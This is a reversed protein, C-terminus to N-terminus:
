CNIGDLSPKEKADSNMIESFYGGPIQLYRKWGVYDTSLQYSYLLAFVGVVGHGPLDFCMVTSVPETCSVSLWSFVDNDLCTFTFSLGRSQLGQCICCSGTVQAGSTLRHSVFRGISMARMPLCKVEVVCPRTSNSYCRCLSARASLLGRTTRLPVPSSAKSTQLYPTCSLCVSSLDAPVGQERIRCWTASPPLIDYIFERM